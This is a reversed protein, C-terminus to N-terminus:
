HDISMDRVVCTGVIVWLDGQYGVPLSMLWSCAVLLSTPQGEIKLILGAWSFGSCSFGERSWDFSVRKSNLLSQGLTLCRTTSSSNIRPCVVEPDREKEGWGGERLIVFKTGLQPKIQINTKFLKCQGFPCKLPYTLDVVQIISILNFATSAVTLGHWNSRWNTNSITSSPSWKRTNTNWNSILLPFRM